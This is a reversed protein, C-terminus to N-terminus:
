YMLRREEKPSGTTKFKTRWERSVYQPDQLNSSAELKMVFMEYGM